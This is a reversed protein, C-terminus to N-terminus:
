LTGELGSAKLASQDSFGKLKKHLDEVETATSKIDKSTTAESLMAAFCSGMLALDKDKIGSNVVTHVHKLQADKYEQLRKSAEAVKAEGERRLEAEHQQWKLHEKWCYLLHAYVIGDLFYTEEALAHEPLAEESSIQIGYPPTM